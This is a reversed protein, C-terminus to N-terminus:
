SFHGSPPCAYILSLVSMAIHAPDMQKIVPVLLLRKHVLYHVNPNWLLTAMGQGAADDAEPSPNQEM